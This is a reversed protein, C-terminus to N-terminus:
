REPALWPFLISRLAPALADGPWETQRRLSAIVGPLGDPLVGLAGTNLKFVRDDGSGACESISDLKLVDNVEVPQAPEHDFAKRDLRHRSIRRRAQKLGGSSHQIGDPQLIDARASEEILLKRRQAGLFVHNHEGIDEAVRAGVILARDSNEVFAFANRSIFQVDGARVGGM